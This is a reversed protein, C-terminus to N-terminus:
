CVFEVMPKKVTEEYDSKRPTFWDRDNNKKLARLFAMGEKPFGPFSNKM